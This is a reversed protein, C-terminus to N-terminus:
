QQTPQKPNLLRDPIFKPRNEPPYTPVFQTATGSNYKTTYPIGKHKAYWKSYDYKM